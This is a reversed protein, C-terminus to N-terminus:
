EAAALLTRSRAPLSLKLHDPLHEEITAGSDPEAVLRDLAGLPSDPTASIAVEAPENRYNCIALPGDRFCYIGVRGPCRVTLGLPAIITNRIPDLVEQPFELMEVLRNLNVGARGALQATYTDLMMALGAGHRKSTFYPAHEDSIGWSVLVEADTAQLAGTM